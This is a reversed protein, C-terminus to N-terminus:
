GVLENATEKALSGSLMDVFGFVCALSRGAIGCLRHAVAICGGITLKAFISGFDFFALLDFESAGLYTQITRGVGLVNAAAAQPLTPRNEM